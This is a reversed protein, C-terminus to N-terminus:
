TAPSWRDKLFTRSALFYFAAAVLFFLVTAVMSQRLGEAYASCLAPGQEGLEAIRAGCFGPNFTAYAETLGNKEIIGGMFASSMIGTFLPGIGNGILSVILLLVSVTTARSRPSVIATSVTYQAGLYAYHAVAAIVWLGFAMSLTPALFAGVYAPISVLLGVGPLWAVIAPFRPSLKESLFGGLFTGLAAVAALPAGYHIAAESVSVGHVRMLFPAQFAILGYGVFAVFAAGLSLTWFTPKKGFEKFAEFFGAKEVPTAGKPDSYGRPPEKVTFWLLAAILIGPAGVIVFVLRWGEVEEWNIGSFLGGLGMSGIFNGFDPGQLGALAGGFLQAMVGGITVGMSYIGIANARSKPPYYDTIISNAPPTCGAEGVAVGIRFLLLWIFSAALGCAVTMISWVIVCLAIIFIRNGRDAWMAIPIGMLAYFIAFPPGTLLGWQADSLSFTNIIPQAVVTIVTRDIFNLTYILTLALLVYSRYPKTGFGTIHGNDSQAADAPATM